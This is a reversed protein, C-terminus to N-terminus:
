RAPMAAGIRAAEDALEAVDRQEVGKEGWPQGKYRPIVHVHLHFVTQGYGNNQEISFGQAGLAKMQAQGVRRAVALVDDLDALDIELLNRATSRKSIVLVHGNEVPKHDMFAVVRDDEYVRAAPLEGRIIKAFPNNREYQGPILAQVQAAPVPRGSPLSACGGVALPALVLALIARKTVRM